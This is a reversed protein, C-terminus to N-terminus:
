DSTVLKGSEMCAKIEENSESAKKLLESTNITVFPYKEEIMKRQTNKGSGVGGSVFIVEPLRVEIGKVLLDVYTCIQKFVM